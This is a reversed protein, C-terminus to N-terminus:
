LDTKLVTFAKKSYLRLTSQLAATLPPTFYACDLRVTRVERLPVSVVLDFASIVNNESM